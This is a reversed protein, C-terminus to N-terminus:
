NTAVRRNKIISEAEDWLANGNGHRAWDRWLDETQRCIYPVPLDIDTPESTSFVIRRDVEGSAISMMRADVCPWEEFLVCVCLSPPFHEVLYLLDSHVWPLDTSLHTLSTLRSLQPYWTSGESIIIDLHTLHVFNPPPPGGLASPFPTPFCSLRRLAKHNSLDVSTKNNWVLLSILNRCLPVIEEVDSVASHHPLTLEQVLSALEPFEVLTRRLLSLGVSTDNDAASLAISRYLHPYCRTVIDVTQGISKQM